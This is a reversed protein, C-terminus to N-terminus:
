LYDQISELIKDTSGSDQAIRNKLKEKKLESIEGNEQWWDVLDNADEVISLFKNQRYDMAERDSKTHPGSAIPMNYIAPEIINHVGQKFGGGILALDCCGYLEFLCGLEDVILVSTDPVSGGESYKSFNLQRKDCELVMWNIMESSVDHSVLIVKWNHQDNASIQEFADLTVVVDEKWASGVILRKGAGILQDVKKSIKIRSESREIMREQSRDFKTNGVATAKELVNENLLNLDNNSVVFVHDLYSFLFNKFKISLKSTENRIFVDVAITRSHEYSALIFSPWFEHRVIISLSPNVSSMIRRWNWITDIPAMGFDLDEDLKKAYTYGSVSFFVIFIYHDSKLRNILPKGQEFEGASSCFFLVSKDFNNRKKSLKKLRAKSYKRNKSQEKIASNFPIFLKSGMRFAFWISSYCYLWFRLVIPINRHKKM